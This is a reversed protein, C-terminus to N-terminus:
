VMIRRDRAWLPWRDIVKRDAIVVMEQHLASTPCIHMPIGYLIDGTQFEPAQPTRVVLHEESHVTFEVVELDLLYIRPHPMESALAKHGLDLCILDGGPKSIVRTLLVAAPLFKLDPFAELYGQDWLLSTGPSLYVQQRLAHVPFTPSGGAIVETVGTEDMVKQVSAYATEAAKKRDLFDGQRLHGDYAHWGRFVLHPLSRINGYLEVAAPGPAIGTRHMGVDLDIYCHISIANEEALRNLEAAVQRNDILVSFQTEPFKQILVGLRQVNPGVPQYALLVDGANCGALMEAEAITACKFNQIGASQQLRIIEPSKHTKVHPRLRKTDGAIRIMERINAEIRDPYVLLAPSPIKDTEDVEYWPRMM